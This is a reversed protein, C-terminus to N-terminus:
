NKPSPNSPSTGPQSGVATPTSNKKHMLRNQIDPWFESFMGGLSGYLLSIGARSMTLGFGRDEDPYYANSIGGATLAGMVNSFHFTKGGSDKHAVFQQELSYIIRRKKSGEGLRFYRPDQKFLVPYFFNTFFGSDVSDAFAAGYRKGYGSAGQGYGEFSNTAQSIGAQAGVLVFVVPDFASRVFLHFKEKPALPTADHRSTTGFMPVVGLVRYSQEEKQAEKEQDSKQHSPADPTQKTQDSGSSQQNNPTATASTGPSAPATAQGSNQESGPGQQAVMPRALSLLCVVLIARNRV